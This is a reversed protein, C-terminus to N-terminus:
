ERYIDYVTEIEMILKDECRMKLTEPISFIIYIDRVYM